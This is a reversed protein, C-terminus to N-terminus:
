LQLAHQGGWIWVLLVPGRTPWVPPGQPPRLLLPPKHKGPGGQRLSQPTINTSGGPIRLNHVPNLPLETDTHAHTDGQGRHTLSPPSHPPGPTPPRLWGAQPRPM